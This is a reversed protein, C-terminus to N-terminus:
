EGKAKAIVAKNKNYRLSGIYDPAFCLASHTEELQELLEDAVDAVRFSKHELAEATKVTLYTEIAAKLCGKLNNFLHAEVKQFKGVEDLLTWAAVNLADDFTVNVQDM